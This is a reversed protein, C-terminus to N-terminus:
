IEELKRKFYVIEPDGEDLNEIFGSRVYGNRQFVRQMNKNSENTSSFIKETGAIEEVHKLLLSAHGQRRHGPEVVILSIFTQDFFSTHFLLFGTGTGDEKVVLCQMRHIHQLIEEKRSENGIVACDIEVLSLLDSMQAYAVNAM